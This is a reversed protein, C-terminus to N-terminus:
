PCPLSCRHTHHALSSLLLGPSSDQNQWKAFYQTVQALRHRGSPGHGGANPPHVSYHWARGAGAAESGPPKTSVAPVHPGCTELCSTLGCCDGKNSHSAGADAPSEATTWLNPRQPNLQNGMKCIRCNLGLIWAHIGNGARCASLILVGTPPM